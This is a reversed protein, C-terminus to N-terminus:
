KKTLKFPGIELRILKLKILFTTYSLLYMRAWYLRVRRRASCYFQKLNTEQVQTLLLNITHMTIVVFASATFIHSQPYMRHLTHQIIDVTQLIKLV